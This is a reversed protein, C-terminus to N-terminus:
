RRRAFWDRAASGFMLGVGALALVLPLALVLLSGGDLPLGQSGAGLVSAAIMLVFGATAAALLGRAWRRGGWALVGLLVYALAIGMLIFGTIRMVQALDVGLEQIRALDDTPRATPAQEPGAVAVLGILLYPLASLVVLLLALHLSGPRRPPAVPEPGLGAPSSPYSAPYAYNGYPNYVYPPEPESHASGAPYSPGDYPSGPAPPAHQSRADPPAQGHPSREDAPGAYPAQPDPSRGAAEPYPRAPDPVDREDPARGDAPTSV